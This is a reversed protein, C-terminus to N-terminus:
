AEGEAKDPQGYTTGLVTAQEVPGRSPSGAVSYPPTRPTDPQTVLLARLSEAADRFADIRPTSRQAAWGEWEAALAEVAERLGPANADAPPTWGAAVVVAAVQEWWDPGFELDAAALRAALERTPDATM